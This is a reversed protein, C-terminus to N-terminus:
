GVDDIAADGVTVCVPSGAVSPTAVTLVIAGHLDPPLDVADTM